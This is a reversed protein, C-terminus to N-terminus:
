AQDSGAVLLNGNDFLNAGNGAQAKLFGFRQHVFCGLRDFLGNWFFLGFLNLRLKFFRTGLHFELLVCSAVATIPLWLIRKKNCFANFTFIPYLPSYDKSGM